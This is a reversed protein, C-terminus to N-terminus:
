DWRCCFNLEEVCCRQMKHATRFKEKFFGQSSKTCYTLNLESDLAISLFKMINEPVLGLDSLEICVNTSKQPRLLMVHSKDLNSAMRNSDFWNLVEEVEDELGTIM